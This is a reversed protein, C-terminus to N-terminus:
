FMLKTLIYQIFRGFIFYYYYFFLTNNVHACCPRVAGCSCFSWRVVMTIWSFLYSIYYYLFFLHRGGVSCLGFLGCVCVCVYVSARVGAVYFVYWCCCCCCWCYVMSLPSFLIIINKNGKNRHARAETHPSLLDFSFKNTVSNITMCTRRTTDM